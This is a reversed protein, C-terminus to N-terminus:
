SYFLRAADQLGDVPLVELRKQEQSLTQYPRFTKHTIVYGDGMFSGERTPKLLKQECRDKILRKTTEHWHHRYGANCGCDDLIESYSTDIGADAPMKGGTLRLHYWPTLPLKQMAIRCEDRPLRQLEAYSRHSSTRFVLEDPLISQLHIDLALHVSGRSTYPGIEWFVIRHAIDSPVIKGSALLMEVELGYKEELMTSARNPNDHLLRNFDKKGMLSELNSSLAHMTNPNRRM